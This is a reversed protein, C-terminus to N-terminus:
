QCLDGHLYIAHFTQSEVFFTCSCPFMDNHMFIDPELHFMEGVIIKCVHTLKYVPHQAQASKLFGIM